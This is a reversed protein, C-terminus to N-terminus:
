DPKPLHPSTRLDKSDPATPSPKGADIAHLHEALGHAVDIHLNGLAAQNKGALELARKLAARGDDRRDAQGYQLSALDLFEICRLLAPRRLSRGAYGDLILDAARRYGSAAGVHDGTLQKMAAEVSTINAQTDIFDLQFDVKDRATTALRQRIELASVLARRALDLPMPDKTQLALRVLTEGRNDQTWPLASLRFLNNPDRKSVDTLLREAAEFADDAERFQGRNHHILGINNYILALRHPWRLNDWLGNGLKDFSDRARMFWKMAADVNGLRWQVDGFKNESWAIAQDFSPGHHGLERVRVRAAHCAEFEALANEPEGLRFLLVDGLEQNLDALTATWEWV